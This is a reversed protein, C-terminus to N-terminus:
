PDTVPVPPPAVTREAGLCCEAIAFDLAANLTDFRTRCRLVRGHREQEALRVTVLRSLHHSLTSPPVGLRAQLDNVAMGSDGARVLLRLISLRTPNGLEALIAAATNLDM